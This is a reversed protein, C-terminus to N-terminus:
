GDHPAEQDDRVAHGNAAAAARAAGNATGRAGGPLAPIGAAAAAPLMNPLNPHGVGPLQQPRGAQPPRRTAGTGAPLGTPPQPRGPAGALPAAPKGGGGAPVYKVGNIMVSPPAGAAAPAQAGGAAPAAGAAGQDGLESGPKETERASTGPPPAQPDEVLQTVDGSNATAICSVRTFGAAVLAAVSQGRVLTAQARALEGERLAAIGSVDYWLRIPVQPPMSTPLLHEMAACIMRWQPRAWLDAMRRIAAQYDGPLLGVVELPVNAASCVRREGAKTVADFQLEELSSGTVVADAGEDLVLVNGANEPGGYRAKLRKRLTDVTPDSLKQSYKVTLGPMAGNDLHFTKYQTLREDSRVDMIVPTIWSMGRWRAMPDPVPAIHAVEETTYFQPERGPGQSEAYGITRRFRRGLDDVTEESVITVDEPRMQALLEASGDAPIIKRLYANGFSADQEIKKLLDGTDGGPWPHELLALDQNGFLRDDTMSQFQFRAESILMMRAVLCGFVIGNQRYAERAERILYGSATERDRGTQGAVPVYMAGTYYTENYGAPNAARALLRDLLRAM